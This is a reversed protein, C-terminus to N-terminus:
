AAQPVWYLPGKTPLKEELCCVSLFWRLEKLGYADMGVGYAFLEGHLDFGVALIPLGTVTINHPKRLMFVFEVRAAGHALCWGRIFVATKGSDLVDDIVIVVAGHFDETNNITCFRVRPKTPKNDAGYSRVYVNEAQVLITQRTRILGSFYEGGQGVTLLIIKQGRARCEEVRKCVTQSLCPIRENVTEATIVGVTNNRVYEFTLKTKAM